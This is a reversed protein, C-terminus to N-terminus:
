GAARQPTAAELAAAETTRVRGRRARRPMARAAAAASTTAGAAAALDYESVCAFTSTRIVFSPDSSTRSSMLKKKL